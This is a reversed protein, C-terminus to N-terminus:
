TVIAPEFVVKGGPAVVALKPAPMETPPAGSPAFPVTATCGFPVAIAVSRMFGDAVIPARGTVTLPVSVSESGFAKMTVEPGRISVKILTSGFVAAAPLGTETIAVPKSAPTAAGGKVIVSVGGPPPAGIVVLAVTVPVAVPRDMLKM